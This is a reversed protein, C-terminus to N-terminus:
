ISEKTQTTYSPHFPIPDHPNAVAPDGDFDTNRKDTLRLEPDRYLNITPLPDDVLDDGAFDLALQIADLVDELDVVHGLLDGLFEKYVASGCSCTKIYAVPTGSIIPYTFVYVTKDDFHVIATWQSNSFSRLDSNEYLGHDVLRQYKTRIREARAEDVKIAHTDKPVQPTGPVFEFPRTSM